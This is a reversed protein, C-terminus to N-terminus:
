KQYDVATDPSTCPTNSQLKRYESPPIGELKKFNRNFSTINSYGVLDGIEAITLSNDRLLHKACDIRYFNIYELPTSDLHKKFQRSIHQVSIGINESLTILDLDKNQYNNAIYDCTKTVIDSKDSTSLDSFLSPILQQCVSILEDSSKVKRIEASISICAPNNISEQEICDSIICKLSEIRTNALRHNNSLSLVYKEVINEIFAPILDYKKTQCINILMQLQRTFNASINENSPITEEPTKRHLSQALLVQDVGEVYGKRIDTGSCRKSCGYYAQFSFNNKMLAATQELINLLKPTLDDDKDYSFLAVIRSRVFTYTIHINPPTLKRISNEAFIIPFDLNIENATFNDSFTYVPYMIGVYYNAKYPEFGADILNRPTSPLIGKYINEAIQAKMKLAPSTKQCYHDIISRFIFENYFSTHAATIQGDYKDLSSITKIAKKHLQTAKYFVVAIGSFLLTVIYVIISALIFYPFKGTGDSLIYFISTLIFSYFISIFYFFANQQHVIANLIGKVCYFFQNM